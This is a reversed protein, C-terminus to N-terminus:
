GRARHDAPSRHRGGTINAAIEASGMAAEAVSRSIENTTATQEEMASAITTQNDNIQGLVVGALGGLRGRVDQPGQRSDVRGRPLGLLHGAVEPREDLM